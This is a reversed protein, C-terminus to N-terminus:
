QDRCECDPASGAAGLQGFALAGILVGVALSAAAVLILLGRQSKSRDSARTTKLPSVDQDATPRAKRKKNQRPDAFTPQSDFWGEVEADGPSPPLPAPEALPEKHEAKYEGTKEVDSVSTKQKPM